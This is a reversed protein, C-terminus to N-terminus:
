KELMKIIEKAEQGEEQSPNLELCQKFYFLADKNQQVAQKNKGMWFYLTPMYKNVLVAKELLAYSEQYKKQDYLLISKEVYADILKYDDQIAKTFEILASDVININSYYIGKNFHGLASANGNDYIAIMRDALQLSKPNNMSAYNYSAENLLQVDNPAHELEKELSDIKELLISSTNIGEANGKKAEQTNQEHSNCGIIITLATCAFAFHILTKLTTKKM